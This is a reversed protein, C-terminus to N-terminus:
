RWRPSNNCKHLLPDSQSPNGWLFPCPCSRCPGRCPYLCPSRCPIRCLCPCPNRCPNFALTRPPVLPVPVLSRAMVAALHPVLTGLAPLIPLVMQVLNAGHILLLLLSDLLHLALRAPHHALHVLNHVWWISRPGPRPLQCTRSKRPLCFGSRWSESESCSMAM